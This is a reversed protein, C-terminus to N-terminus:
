RSGVRRQKVFADVDEQKFRVLHGLKIYLISGGRMWNDLTRQSAALQRSTSRKSLLDACEKHLPKAESITKEQTKM